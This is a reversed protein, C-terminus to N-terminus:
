IMLVFDMHNMTVSSTSTSECTRKNLWWLYGIFNTGHHWSKLHPFSSWLSSLKFHNATTELNCYLLFHLKSRVRHTPWSDRHYISSLFLKFSCLDIKTCLKLPKLGDHYAPMPTSCSVDHCAPLLFLFHAAPKRMKRRKNWIPGWRHFPAVWM